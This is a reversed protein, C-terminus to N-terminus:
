EYNNGQLKSPERVAGNRGLQKCVGTHAAGTAAAVCTETKRVYIIQDAAQFGFFSSLMLMKSYLPEAMMAMAPFSQTAM